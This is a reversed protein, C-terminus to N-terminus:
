VRDFWSYVERKKIVKFVRRGHPCNLYFDVKSGEAILWHLTQLSLDEGSRVSSHCAITALLKHSLETLLSSSPRDLDILKGALDLILENLPRGKVLSPIAHIEVTDGIFKLTFGMKELEHFNEKLALTHEADFELAEPILLKEKSRLLAPNSILNEYQIREHFAHQDIVILDGHFDFLLYCQSLSGIYNMQEFPLKGGTNEYKFPGDHQIIEPFNLRSAPSPKSTFGPSSKFVSPSLTHDNRQGPLSESSLKMEKVHGSIAPLSFHAQQRAESLSFNSPAREPYPHKFGNKDLTRSFIDKREVEANEESPAEAWAGQRLNRQINKAVLDFTEKAYQFKVEVKAPHVNVDILAPDIDVYILCLPYKGKLLHSHYGRFIASRLGGDKVPRSNVFFYIDKATAKEMGPPSILAKLHGIPQKDEIYILNEAEVGLVASARRRLAKELNIELSSAPSAPYVSPLNLIEKDNHVYKFSIALHILALNKLTNMCEAAEAPPSKLFKKRAPVKSFLDEVVIATGPQGYFVSWNATNDERCEVIRTGEESARPVTTLTMRSVAAVSALAEGRFGLSHINFLDELKKLKSTSHAKTSLLADERVMGKGDDRVSIYDIGGSRTEIIINQAEADIANEVLEKIISAPREVVEGAAIKNILDQPLIQIQPM